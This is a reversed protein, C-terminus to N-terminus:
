FSTRGKFECGIRHRRVQFLNQRWERKTGEKKGVKRERERERWLQLALSVSKREGKLLLRESSESM